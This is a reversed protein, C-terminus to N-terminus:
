YLITINESMLVSHDLLVLRDALKWSGDARRLVDNRAYSLQESYLKDLRYRVFLVYSRVKVENSKKTPEILINTVLHKARSPPDESWSYESLLKRVRIDLARRDDDIYFSDELIGPGSVKEKSIRVPIKYRIDETLLNMWERARGQDLLEAERYLFETVERYTRDDVDM